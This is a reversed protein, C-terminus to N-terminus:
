IRLNFICIEENKRRKNNERSLYQAYNELTEENSGWYTHYQMLWDQLGRLSERNLTIFNTRGIKRRRIIGANELVKIHKHIAPLSLGRMSALQSISYPQLSLIYIIERRHKNALAEFVDDLDRPDYLETM